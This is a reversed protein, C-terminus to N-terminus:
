DDGHKKKNKECAMKLKDMLDGNQVLNQKWNIFADRLKGLTRSNTETLQLGNSWLYCGDGSPDNYRFQFAVNIANIKGNLVLDNSAPYYILANDGLEISEGITKVLTDEQSKRIDGFQPTNKNIPFEDDGSHKSKDYVEERLLARFKKTIDNNENVVHKEMVNEDNEEHSTTRRITELIQRTKNDTYM